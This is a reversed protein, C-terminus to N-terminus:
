GNCANWIQENENRKGVLIMRDKARTLAVTLRRPDQLFDKRARGLNLFVIVTDWDKGQAKDMTLFIQHSDDLKARDELSAVQRRLPCLVALSSQLRESKTINWLFDIEQEETLNEPIEFWEVSNTQNKRTSGCKLKGDYFLKNSIEMIQQNMRFQTRLEVVAGKSSGRSFFSVAMGEKIAKDSKVLPPLQKPDGVLVANECIALVAWLASECVQGAEDLILVDFKQGSLLAHHVGMVTCAFITKGSIDELVARTPPQLSSQQPQTSELDGPLFRKVSEAVDKDRSALRIIGSFVESGWRDEGDIIKELIHDVALHTHASLLVRKGRQWLIVLLVALLTSKGTGPYGCIRLVGSNKSSIQGLALKVAEMQDETLHKLLVREQNSLIGHKDDAVINSVLITLWSSKRLYLGLLAGRMRKFSTNRLRGSGEEIDASGNQAVSDVSEEMELMNWWRKLYALEKSDSQQSGGIGASALLGCEERWFCSRCEGCSAPLPAPLTKHALHSALLNRAKIVDVLAGNTVHVKQESVTGSQDIYLLAPEGVTKGLDNCDSTSMLLQYVLIQGIHSFHSKGTKFEVVKLEGDKEVIMDLKGKLGLGEKAIDVEAGVFRGVSGANTSLWKALGPLRPRVSIELVDPTLRGAQWLAESHENAIEKLRKELLPLLCDPPTFNNNALEVSNHKQFWDQILSHICHGVLAPLSGVTGEGDDAQVILHQLLARRACPVASSVTTGTLVEEPHAVLLSPQGSGESLVIHSDVWQGQPVIINICDDPRLSDPECELWSRWGGLLTVYRLHANGDILEECELGLGGPFGTLGTRKIKLRSRLVSPAPSIATVLSAPEALFVAEDLISLDLGAFEDIMEPNSSPASPHASAVALLDLEEEEDIFVQNCPLFSELEANFDGSSERNGPSGTLRRILQPSLNISQRSDPSKRMHRVREEKHGTLKIRKKPSWTVGGRTM